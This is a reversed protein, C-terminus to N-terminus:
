NRSAHHEAFSHSEMETVLRDLSARAVTAASSDPRSRAALIADEAAQSVLLLYPPAHHALDRAVILAAEAEFPSAGVIARALTLSFRLKSDNTM